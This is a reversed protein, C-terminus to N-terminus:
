ESRGTICTQLNHEFGAREVDEACTDTCDANNGGVLVYWVNLNDTGCELVYLEDLNDNDNFFYLRSASKGTSEYHNGVREFRAGIEIEDIRPLSFELIDGAVSITFHQKYCLVSDALAYGTVNNQWKEILGVNAYEEDDDCTNQWDDKLAARTPTVLFVSVLAFILRM